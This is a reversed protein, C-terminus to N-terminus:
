GSIRHLVGVCADGLVAYLEQFLVLRFKVRFAAGVDAGNWQRSHDASTRRGARAEAPSAAVELAALVSGLTPEVQAALFAAM